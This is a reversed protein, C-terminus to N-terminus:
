DEHIVWTDSEALDADFQVGDFIVTMKENDDSKAITYAISIYTNSNDIDHVIVYCETPLVGYSVFMSPKMTCKTLTGVATEEGEPTEYEYYFFVKRDNIKNYLVSNEM